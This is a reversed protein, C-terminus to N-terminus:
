VEPRPQNALWIHLCRVTESSDRFFRNDRADWPATALGNAETTARGLPTSVNATLGAATGGEACVFCKRLCDLFLDYTAPKRVTSAIVAGHASHPLLASLLSTLLRVLDDEFVQYM